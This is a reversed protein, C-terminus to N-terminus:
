DENYTIPADSVYADWATLKTETTLEDISHTWIGVNSANFDSDDIKIFTNKPLQQINPLPVSITLIIMEQKYKPLNSNAILMLADTYLAFPIDITVKFGAMVIDYLINSYETSQEPSLKIKFKMNAGLYVHTCSYEIAYDIIQIAPILEVVFLTRENHAITHEVEPGVFVAVNNSNGTTYERDMTIVLYRRWVYM